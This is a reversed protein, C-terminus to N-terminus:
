VKLRKYLEESHLLIWIKEGESTKAPLDLEEMQAILLNMEEPHLNKKQDVAAHSAIIKLLDRLVQDPHVRKGFASIQSVSDHLVIECKQPPLAFPLSRISFTNGGFSEM